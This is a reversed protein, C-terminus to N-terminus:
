HDDLGTLDGPFIVLARVRTTHHRTGLGKIWEFHKLRPREKQNGHMHHLQSLHKHFTRAQGNSGGGWNILSIQHGKNKQIKNYKRIKWKIGKNQKIWTLKM